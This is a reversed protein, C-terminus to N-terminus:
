HAVDYPLFNEFTASAVSADNMASTRLLQEGMYFVAGSM